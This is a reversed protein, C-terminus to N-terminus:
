VASTEAAGSRRSGRVDAPTKSGWPKTTMLQRIAAVYGNPPAPEWANTQPNFRHYAGGNYRQIMEDELMEPTFPPHRNLYAEAQVRKEALIAAGRSVNAKWSWRQDDTAQNIQMLGWDATGNSNHNVLPKGGVGFQRWNSERWGIARLVDNGLAASVQARSPNTGTIHTHLILQDCNGDVCAQTCLVCEGQGAINFSGVFIPITRQVRRCGFETLAKGPEAKEAAASVVLATSVTLTVTGREFNLALDDAKDAFTFGESPRFPPIGPCFEWLQVWDQTAPLEANENIVFNMNGSVPQITRGSVWSM